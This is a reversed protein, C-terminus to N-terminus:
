LSYSALDEAKLVMGPKLVVCAMVLESWQPDPIGFVAAERVAPTGYLVAEVEGSYVNEGGTVIMDNMRDSVYFYGMAGQYGTGPGSFGTASPKPPKKRSTGTVACSM